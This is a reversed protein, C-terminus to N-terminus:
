AESEEWPATDDAVPGDEAEVEAVAAAVAANNLKKPRAVERPKEGEAQPWRVPELREITRDADAGLRANHACRLPDAREIPITFTEFFLKTFAERVAKSTSFLLVMKRDHYLLADVLNVAPLTRPLLRETLEDKLERRERASLKKGRQKETADRYIQLWKMPLKKKDIRFRLWTAVGGELDEIAFTDGTPDVPTVWGVSMEERAATEISRFRRQALLEGFGEDRPDALKGDWFYTVVGGSKRIAAL